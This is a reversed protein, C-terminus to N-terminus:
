KILYYVSFARRSLTCLKDIKEEKSPIVELWRKVLSIMYSFSIRRDNFLKLVEEANKRFDFNEPLPYVCDLVQRFFATEHPTALSFFERLFTANTKIERQETIKLDVWKGGLLTTIRAFRLPKVFLTGDVSDFPLEMLIDYSLRGFGHWWISQVMDRGFVNLMEVFVSAFLDKMVTANRIDTGMGIVRAGEDIYKKMWKLSEGFHWVPISEVGEEKMRRWNQYSLEGSGIVDLEVLRAGSDILEKCYQIYSTFYNEFDQTRTWEYEDHYAEKARTYKNWFSFAGSDLMLKDGLYFAIEKLREANRQSAHVAYYTCLLGIDELEKCLGVLDKEEGQWFVKPIAESSVVYVRM